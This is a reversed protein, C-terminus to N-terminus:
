PHVQGYNTRYIDGYSVTGNSPDYERALTEIDSGYDKESTWPTLGTTAVPPNLLPMVGEPLLDPGNSLIAFHNANSFLDFPDWLTNEYTYFFYGEGDTPVKTGQIFPDNPYSTIYAIPTTIMFTYNTYVDDYGFVGNRNAAQLSPHVPYSNNDINYAELATAITAHEAHVRSVKARVQASLFNPIAIAALIAIIAVVILLEILTFGREKRM